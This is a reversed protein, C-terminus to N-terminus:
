AADDQQWDHFVLTSPHVHLAKALVKAREIGISIRNKEIASITSQKLATIQALQLQTLENKERLMRVIDGTTLSVRRKGVVYHGSGLLSRTKRGTTM